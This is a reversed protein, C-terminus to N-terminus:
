FIIWRKSVGQRKIQLPFFFSPFSPAYKINNANSARLWVMAVCMSVCIYVCMYLLHATSNQKSYSSSLLITNSLICGTVKWIVLWYGHEFGDAIGGVSHRDMQSRLNEPHTWGSSSGRSTVKRPDPFCVWGGIEHYWYFGKLSICFRLWNALM